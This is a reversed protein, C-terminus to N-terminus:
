KKMSLFTVTFRIDGEEGFAAAVTPLGLRLSLSKVIESSIGPKTLDLVLDPPTGADIMYDLKDCVVLVFNSINNSHNNYNFGKEVTRYPESGEVEVMSLKGVKAGTKKELYGVAAETAEKAVM